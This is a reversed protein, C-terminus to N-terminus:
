THERLANAIGGIKWPGRSLGPTRLGRNLSAEILTTKHLAALHHRFSPAAHSRNSAINTTERCCELMRHPSQGAIRNVTDAEIWAM